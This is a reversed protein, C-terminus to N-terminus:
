SRSMSALASPPPAATDHKISTSRQVVSSSSTSPARQPRGRGGIVLRVPHLADDDDAASDGPERGRVRELLRSSRLSTSRTSASARLEAAVQVGHACLPKMMSAPGSEHTAVLGCADLERALEAEAVLEIPVRGSM